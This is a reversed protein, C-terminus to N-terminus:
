DLVWSILAGLERSEELGYPIRNSFGFVHSELSNNRGSFLQQVKGATFKWFFIILSQFGQFWGSVHVQSKIKKTCARRCIFEWYLQKLIIQPSHGLPKLCQLLSWFTGPEFGVLREALSLSGVESCPERHGERRFHLVCWNVDPSHPQRRSLPGFIATPCGFLLQFIWNLLFMKLTSYIKLAFSFCFWRSLSFFTLFM